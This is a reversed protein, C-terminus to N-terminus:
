RACLSEGAARWITLSMLFMGGGGCVVTRTPPAVAPSTSRSALRPGTKGHIARSV